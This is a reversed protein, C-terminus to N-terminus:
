VSETVQGLKVYTSSLADSSNEMLGAVEQDSLLSDDIRSDDKGSEGPTIDINSQNSISDSANFISSM